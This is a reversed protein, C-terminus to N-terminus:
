ADRPRAAPQVLAGLRAWEQVCRELDAFNKHLQDLAFGLGFLRELDSSSLARTLGENRLATIESTYAELAAEMPELPPPARRSALARGIAHLYDCVSASVRALSAALREAVVQPLPEVAARGIIVLDHRLRLLTRSLPSADPEALVGIRRERQAEAAIAYFDTVARGIENQMRPIDAADLQRTFGALLKSLVEALQDLIRAAADLGLGHARQPFVLVSVTVAVVGGLAVEFLRYLGSELPGEGLQSSILLVMVATFPAVRFAPNLAAAYALPAVTLALVGALAIPATHPVLMGVVTAYVAGSCTGIVYETTARLSGGVSMQTVVVATLVAWLGHLPITFIRALAFATIAAVTM